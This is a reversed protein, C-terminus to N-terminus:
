AEESFFQPPGRTTLPANVPRQSDRRVTSVSVKIGIKSLENSAATLNLTKNTFASRAM